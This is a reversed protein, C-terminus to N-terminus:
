GGCASGGGCGCGGTPAATGTLTKECGKTGPNQACFNQKIPEAAVGSFQVRNNALWTPSAGIGLTKAFKMDDSLLQRGEEGTSCKQIVDAKIGGTACKQWDASRIDKNRCLIYDMYKYNKGYHKIACIERLNEDVEPQGHLSTFQGPATEDGIFHVRFDIKSDFADLVEKMSDLAKVGFPCQSMVFVDLRNPEAKRCVLKGECGLDDCDVKGNGDDDTGNDCIEATPDFKAGVQVAKFAGADTAFRRVKDFGPDQAVAPDFLYAPLLRVGKDKVSAYLQKGEPTGYDVYKANLSPFITRLQSVLRDAACDKCRADTLVTLEVQAVAVKEVPEPSAAQEVVPVVDEKCGAFAALVVAAGVFVL